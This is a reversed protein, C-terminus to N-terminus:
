QSSEKYHFFEVSEIEHSILLTGATDVKPREFGGDANLLWTEEIYIQEKCSGSSAFSKYGYKGAIKTGDKMVIIIWYPIREGFVYDWSREIPHPLWRQLCKSTRFFKLIAVWIIPAVFLVCSWLMVFLIPHSERIGAENIYYILPFLIAYNLCTYAIADIIRDTTGKPPSLFLIEYAKLSVFGPIVFVLFLVLKNADWIDM